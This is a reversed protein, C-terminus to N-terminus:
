LFINFAKNVLFQDLIMTCLVFLKQVNQKGKCISDMFERM